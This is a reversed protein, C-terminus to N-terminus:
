FATPGNRLGNLTALWGTVDGTKLQNEAEILRADTGNVV